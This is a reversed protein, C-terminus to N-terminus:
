PCVEAADKEIPEALCICICLHSPVEFYEVRELVSDCFGKLFLVAILLHARNFCLLIDLPVLGTNVPSIKPQDVFETLKSQQLIRKWEGWQRLWASCSAKNYTLPLSSASSCVLPGPLAWTTGRLGAWAWQLGTSSAPISFTAETCGGHGVEGAGCAQTHPLCSPWAFSHGLSFTKYKPINKEVLTKQFIYRNLLM